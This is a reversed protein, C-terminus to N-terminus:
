AAPQMCQKKFGGVVRQIGSYDNKIFVGEFGTTELIGAVDDAQGMGVEFAAMGGPKLAASWPAFARYFDLGDRGGDLALVPEHDRVERQLGSIEDARVYPPNCAIADFQRGAFIDQTFHRMDGQIIRVNDAVDNLEINAELYRIADPSIEICCAPVGALKAVSIAVCGSGACLELLSPGERGRLFGIVEETLIETEPRPILVGPGVKFPLGMFEWEGLIYQLPEGACRRVIDLWFGVPIELDRDDYLSIQQRKFGMHKEFICAADFPPNDIGVAQLQRKAERFAENLTM